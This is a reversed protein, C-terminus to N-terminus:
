FGGKMLQIVSRAACSVHQLTPLLIETKTEHRRFYPVNDSGSEIVNLTPCFIVKEYCKTNEEFGDYLLTICVTPLRSKYGQPNPALLFLKFFLSKKKWKLIIIKIGSIQFICRKGPSNIGSIHDTTVFLIVINKFLNM